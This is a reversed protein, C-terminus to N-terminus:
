GGAAIAGPPGTLKFRRQLELRLAPPLPTNLFVHLHTLSPPAHQVVAELMRRDAEPSASASGLALTRLERARALAPVWGASLDPNSVLTLTELVKFRESGTLVDLSRDDLSADQLELRTVNAAGALMAAMLKPSAFGANGSLGLRRATAVLPSDFVRGRTQGIRNYSLDVSVLTKPVPTAVVGAIDATQLGEVKIKRLPTRTLSALAPVKAARVVGGEVFGRRWERRTLEPAEREAWAAGYRALLVRERDALEETGASLYRLPMARGAVGVLSRKLTCQIQIFEGRPDGRDTLWDALVLRPEDDDPAALVAALLTPDMEVDPTTESSAEASRPKSRLAISAFHRSEQHDPCEYLGLLIGVYFASAAAVQHTADRGPVDALWDDALEATIALIGADAEYDVRLAKKLWGTRAGASKFPQSPQAQPDLARVLDYGDLCAAWGPMLGGKKCLARRAAESAVVMPFGLNWTLGARRESEKMFTGGRIVAGRAFTAHESSSATDWPSRLARRAEILARAKKPALEDM